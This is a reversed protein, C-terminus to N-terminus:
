EDETQKKSIIQYISKFVGTINKVVRKLASHVAVFIRKIYKMPYQFIKDYLFIFVVRIIDAFWLVAKRVQLYMWKFLVYIPHVITKLLEFFWKVLASFLTKVHGFMVKVFNYVPSFLKHLITGIFHLFILLNDYIWKFVFYIKVFVYRIVRYLPEIVISLVSWISHLIRGIFHFIKYLVRKIYRFLREFLIYISELLKEIWTLIIDSLKELTLFVWKMFEYISIIVFAIPYIIVKGIFGVKQKFNSKDM